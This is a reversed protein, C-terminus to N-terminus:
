DDSSALELDSLAALFGIKQQLCDALVLAQDETEEITPIDIPITNYAAVEAEYAIPHQHAITPFTALRELVKSAELGTFKFDADQGGRQRMWVTVDTHNQTESMATTFAVNFSVDVTLGNYEGKLSTALTRQHEESISTIRAVVLFEGGTNL